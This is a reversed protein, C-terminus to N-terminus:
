TYKRLQVLSETKTKGYVSLCMDCRKLYTEQIIQKLGM